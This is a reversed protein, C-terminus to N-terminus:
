KFIDRMCVPFLWMGQDTVICAQTLTTVVPHVMALLGQDKMFLDPEAVVFMQVLMRAAFDQVADGTVPLNDPPLVDTDGSSRTHCTMEIAPTLFIHSHPITLGAVQCRSFGDLEHILREVVFLKKFVLFPHQAGMTVALDCLPISLYGIHVALCAVTLSRLIDTILRVEMENMYGLPVEITYLTMFLDLVTGAGHTLLRQDRAIALSAM